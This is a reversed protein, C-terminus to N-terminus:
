ARSLLAKFRDTWRSLTKEPSDLMLEVDKVFARVENIANSWVDAELRDNRAAVERIMEQALADDNDFGWRNSWLLLLADLLKQKATARAKWMRVENQMTSMRSQLETERQRLDSVTRLVERACVAIDDSGYNDYERLLAYVYDLKDQQGESM